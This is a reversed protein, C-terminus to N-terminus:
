NVKYLKSHEIEIEASNAWPSNFFSEYSSGSMKPSKVIQIFVNKQDGHVTNDKIAHEVLANAYEIMIREDSFLIAYQFVCFRGYNHEFLENIDETNINKGLTHVMQKHVYKNLRSMVEVDKNTHVYKSNFVQPCILYINKVYTDFTTWTETRKVSDYLNNLFHEEEIQLHNTLIKVTKIEQNINSIVSNKESNQHKVYSIIMGSKLCADFRCKKCSTRSKSDIVCKGLEHHFNRFKADKVSRMFFARCSHCVSNSGYHNHNTNLETKCIFCFNM